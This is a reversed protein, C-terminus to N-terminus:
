RGPGARHSRGERSSTGAEVVVAQFEPSVRDGCAYSGIHGMTTQVEKLISLAANLDRDHPTGCNPCTWERDALTLAANRYDCVHCTQTSPFFRGVKRVEASYWEAKYALMSLFTSWSADAIHKALKRNRLLNKVALDEVGIAQNERILRISQKHLFDKRQNVVREEQRAVKIRSKERNKGGKKRRSLQRKLQRLKKQSRIYPKPAPVKRGSSDALYSTLGLDVGIQGNGAQTAPQQAEVLFSAYYKGSPRLSITVSRLVAGQPLPRHLIIKLPTMKPVILTDGELRFSQPVRLSQYGRKSKFRPFGVKPPKEGRKRQALYAFFNAYAQDLDMLKQQLAQANAEKLWEHEGDRKLLTLREATDPYSLGKGTAKYHQQRLELFANWVWRGCGFHRELAAAQEPTPYIRYEYGRQITTSNSMSQREMRQLAPPHKRVAVLKNKGWWDLM